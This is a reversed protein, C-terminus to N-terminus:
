VKSLGIRIDHYDRFVFGDIYDPYYRAEIEEGDSNLMKTIEYAGAKEASAEKLDMTVSAKPDGSHLLTAAFSTEAISVGENPYLYYHTNWDAGEHLTKRVAYGLEETGKYVTTRAFLEACMNNIEHVESKTVNGNVDKEVKPHSGFRDEGQLGPLNQGLIESIKMFTLSAVDLYLDYWVLQYLLDNLSVPIQLTVKGPAWYAQVAYEVLHPDLDFVGAVEPFMPVTDSSLIAGLAIRRGYGTVSEESQINYFGKIGGRLWDKIEDSFDLDNGMSLKLTATKGYEKGDYVYPAESLEVTAGIHAEKEGEKGLGFFYSGYPSNAACSSLSLVGLLALWKAKKM